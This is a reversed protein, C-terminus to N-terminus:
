GNTRGKAHESPPQTSANPSKAAPARAARETAKAARAAEKARLAELYASSEGVEVSAEAKTVGYTAGVADRMAAVQVLLEPTLAPPVSDITRLEM